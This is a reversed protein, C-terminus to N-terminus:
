FERKKRDGQLTFRPAPALPPRLLPPAPPPPRPAVPHLPRGASRPMRRTFRRRRHLLRTTCLSAPPSRSRRSGRGGFRLPPRLKKAHSYRLARLVSRRSYFLVFGFRSFTSLLDDAGVSWGLSHFFLTKTAADAKAALWVIAM